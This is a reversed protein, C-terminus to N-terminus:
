QIIWHNKRPLDITCLNSKIAARLDFQFWLLTPNVQASHFPWLVKSYFEFSYVPAINCNVAIYFSSFEKTM